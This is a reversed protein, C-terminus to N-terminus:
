AHEPKERLDAVAHKAAHRKDEVAVLCSLLQKLQWLSLSLPPSSPTSGRAGSQCPGVAVDAPERLGRLPPAAALESILRPPIAPPNGGVCPM